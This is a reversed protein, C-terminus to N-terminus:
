QEGFAAHRDKTMGGDCHQAQRYCMQLWSWAQTLKESNDKPMATLRAFRPKPGVAEISDVVKGMINLIQGHDSYWADVGKNKSAAFKTREGYRVFPDANEIKRWDPTWSPLKPTCVFTNTNERENECGVAFNKFVDESQTNRGYDPNLGGKALWDKALGLAAFVRDRQDKCENFCTALLIEFFSLSSTGNVSRRTREMAFINEKPHLTKVTEMANVTLMPDQLKGLVTPFVEWPVSEPGCM